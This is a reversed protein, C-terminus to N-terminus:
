HPNKNYVSPWDPVGEKQTKNKFWHWDKLDMVKHSDEFGFLVIYTYVM